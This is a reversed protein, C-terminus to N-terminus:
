GDKRIYTWVRTDTGNARVPAVFAEFGPDVGLDAARAAVEAPDHLMVPDERGVVEDARYGLMREAGSNFEQITGNLDTAVVLYDRAARVVAGFRARSLPASPHDSHEVDEPVM